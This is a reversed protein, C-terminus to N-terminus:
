DDGNKAIFNAHQLHKTLYKQDAFPWPQLGAANQVQQFFNEM